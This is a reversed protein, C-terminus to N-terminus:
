KTKSSHARSMGNSRVRLRASSAVFNWSAHMVASALVLGLAVATM